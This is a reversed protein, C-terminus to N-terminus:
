RSPMTTPSCLDWRKAPFELRAAFDTVRGTLEGRTLWQGTNGDFVTRAGPDPDAGQLFGRDVM